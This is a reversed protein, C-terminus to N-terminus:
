GGIVGKKLIINGYKATEGTLVIAFAKKSREYFAYRDMKEVEPLTNTVAGIRRLYGQEVAPDCLDGAVAHMMVLAQEVYQDLEILPMIAALLDGIKLGDALVLEDGHGMEALLKLLDPSLLPSIGKLM